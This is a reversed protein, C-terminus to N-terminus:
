SSSSLTCKARECASRLRGIARPNSTLDRKYKQTFESSFHSILRADFDEGGIHSDGAVAKVELITGDEITLLALDLTGGGMDFILVNRNGETRAGIAYAIAAVVPASIVRLVNLGAVHTASLCAIHAANQISKRQSDNWLAPCTIVAHCTEHGRGLYSEAIDKIKGLMMSIIDEPTFTKTEGKFEVQFAANGNQDVVKFPYHKLDAQVQPDLFKRGLFRQANFITNLPNSALQNKAPNGILRGRATFAVVTPTMFNGEENPIIKSGIM